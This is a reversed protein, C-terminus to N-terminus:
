LNKIAKVIGGNRTAVKKEKTPAKDISSGVQEPIAPQFLPNVNIARGSKDFVYNYMNGMVGATLNELKNQGIKSAISNLAAQATAKTLAKAQAQRQYQQDYIALNKLTKDNLAALNRQRAAEKAQVNAAMQQGLINNKATYEQSSIMAQAAPNNGALRRAANASATIENLQSQGTAIAAPETELLPQYTQAQVSELDNSQLAYMEGMLQEPSLRSQNVPKVFPYLASQLMEFTLKNDSSDKKKKDSKKPTNYFESKFSLEEPVYGTREYIDSPILGQLEPLGAPTYLPKDFDVPQMFEPTSLNAQLEKAEYGEYPAFKAFRAAASYDVNPNQYDKLVGEGPQTPTYASTKTYDFTPQSGKFNPMGISLNRQSPTQSVTQLLPTQVVSPSQQQAPVQSPAFQSGITQNYDFMPGEGFTPPPIFTRQQPTTVVSSQIPTYAPPEEYNFTPESSSLNPTSVSINQQTIPQPVPMQAPVKQQVSAQSSVFQSGTTNALNVYQDYFNLFAPDFKNAQVLSSYYRKQENNLSQMFDQPAQQFMNVAEGIQEKNQKLRQERIYKDKELGTLGKEKAQNILERREDIDMKGSAVLIEGYPDGTNIALQLARTRLGSPLNEIPKWYNEYYFQKAKEPTNLNKRNTGFYNGGGRGANRQELDMAQNIFAEFEEPYKTKKTGSQAVNAGNKAQIIKNRNAFKEVDFGFEDAAEHMANQATAAMKKKYAIKKLSMDAGQLMAKGTNLSLLDFPTDGDVSDILKTAKNITKNQKAEKKSLENVYSKFMKGKADDDDLESAVYSPIKLNGFVVASKDGSMQGGEEMEVIPEGNEVEVMNSGYSMGIGTNGKGDSQSHYLGSAIRTEGSGPMYPNYSILETDGGWHTNLEGGMAFQPRETSMARQSPATYEKLHGGARLMDADKPPALLDKVDYDGFKAIVQPQWDHSVWGGHEMFSAYQNQTNQVGQQFAGEQLNQYAEDQMEAIKKERQGGV